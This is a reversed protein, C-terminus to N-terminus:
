SPEENRHHDLDHKDGLVIEGQGIAEILGSRSMGKLQAMSKLNEWALDSVYVMRDKGMGVRGIPSYGAKRGLKLVKTFQKNM